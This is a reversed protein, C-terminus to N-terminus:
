SDIVFKGDSMESVFRAVTPAANWLGEISKPFSSALRWKVTPQQAIAPAAVATVGTAAALRAFNRRSVTMATRGKPRHKRQGPLAERACSLLFGRRRDGGYARSAVCGKPHSARRFTPGSTTSGQEHM